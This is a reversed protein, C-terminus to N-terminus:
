REHATVGDEEAGDGSDHDGVYTGTIMKDKDNAFPNRFKGRSGRKTNARVDYEHRRVRSTGAEHFTCTYM